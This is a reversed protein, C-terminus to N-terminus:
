TSNTVKFNISTFFANDDYYEWIWKDKSFHFSYSIKFVKNKKGLM